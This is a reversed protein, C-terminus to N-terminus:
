GRRFGKRQLGTMDLPAYSSGGWIDRTACRGKTRAWLLLIRFMNVDSKCVLRAAFWLSVGMTLGYPPSVLFIMASAMIVAIAGELPVGFWTPPRTLALFLPDSLNPDAAM